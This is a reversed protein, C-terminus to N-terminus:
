SYLTRYSNFILLSERGKSNLKGLKLLEVLPIMSPCVYYCLGCELCSFLGFEAAEDMRKHEVLDAIINPTIGAPCVDVCKGCRVCPSRKYFRSRREEDFVLAVAAFIGRSKKILPADLSPQPRGM